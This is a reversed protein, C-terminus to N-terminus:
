QSRAGGRVRSLNICPCLGLVWRKPAGGWVGPSKRKVVFTVLPTGPTRGRVGRPPSIMGGAANGRGGGPSGGKAAPPPPPEADRRAPVPPAPPRLGEGK